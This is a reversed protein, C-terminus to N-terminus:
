SKIKKNNLTSFRKIIYIYKKFREFIKINSPYDNHKKIPLYMIKKFEEESFEFKRLFFNYDNNFQDKEYGSTKLIDIAEERKLQNANILSSLHARRKDVNFKNKLIYGQYFRTFISEYHKGGYYKWDLNDELIKIVDKKSYNIYNLIPFWKIKRFFTYYFFKRISLTTIHKLNKGSIKRHVAKLHKLDRANFSWSYPMIAESTINGGGLIYKIGHKAALKYLVAVIVHDTPIEWNIVSAKIFSKQLERFENWDAVETHLDIDLKKLIKEINKVALESNWGNDFHVALPELKYIKKALYAVYTSDVGGSLGIICNYKSKTKSTKIKSIINKLNKVGNSDVHYDEKIRKKYSYCHNCIGNEDFYIFPDTTDMVCKSCIRYQNQVNEVKKDPWHVM